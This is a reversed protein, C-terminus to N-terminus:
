SDQQVTRSLLNWFGEKSLNRSSNCLINTVTKCLKLAQHPLALRMAAVKICSYNQTCHM